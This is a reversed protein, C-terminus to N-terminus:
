QVLPCLSLRFIAIPLPLLRSPLLVEGCCFSGGRSVFLQSSFGVPLLDKLLRPSCRVRSIVVLGPSLCQPLHVVVAWGRIIFGCQGDFVFERLCLLLATAPPLSGM